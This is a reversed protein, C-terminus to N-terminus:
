QCARVRTHVCVCVYARACVRVCGRMFARVGDYTPRRVRACLACADPVRERLRARLTRKCLNRLNERLGCWRQASRVRRRRCRAGALGLRLWACAACLRAAEWRALRQRPDFRRLQPAREALAPQVPTASATAPRVRRAPRPPSSEEACRHRRGLASCSQAASERARAGGTRPLCSQGSGGQRQATGHRVGTTPEHWQAHARGRRSRNRHEAAAAPRRRAVARRPTLAGATTRDLHDLNTLVAFARGAKLM